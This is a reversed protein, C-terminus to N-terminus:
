GITGHSYKIVQHLAREKSVRHILIHDSVPGLLRRYFGLGHMRGTFLNYFLVSCTSGNNIVNLFNTYAGRRM